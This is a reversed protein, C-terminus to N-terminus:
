QRELRLLNNACSSCSVEVQVQDDDISTISVPMWQAQTANASKILMEGQITFAVNLDTTLSRFVLENETYGWDNTRVNQFRGSKNVETFHIVLETTSPANPGTQWNNVVWYGALQRYELPQFDDNDEPTCAFLVTFSLLIISYFALRPYSLSRM